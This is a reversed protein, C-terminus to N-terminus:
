RKGHYMLNHFGCLQGRWCACDSGSIPEGKLLREVKLIESSLEGAEIKKKILVRTEEESM